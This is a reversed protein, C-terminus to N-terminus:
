FLLILGLLDNEGLIFTAKGRLELSFASKETLWPCNPENTSKRLKKGKKESTRKEGARGRFLFHLLSLGNLQKRWQERLPETPFSM